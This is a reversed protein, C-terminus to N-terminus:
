RPQVALLAARSYDGPQYMGWFAGDSDTEEPYREEWRRRWIGALINCFPEGYIAGKGGWGDRVHKLVEYDASPDSSFKPMWSTCCIFVGDGDRYVFRAAVSGGCEYSEDCRKWGMVREAVLADMEAGAGMTRGDDANPTTM